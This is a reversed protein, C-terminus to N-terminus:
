RKTCCRAGGLSEFENRGSMISNGVAISTRTREVWVMCLSFGHSALLERDGGRHADDVYGEYKQRETMKLEGKRGVNRLCLAFLFTQGESELKLVVTMARHVVDARAEGTGLRM